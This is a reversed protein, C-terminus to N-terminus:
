FKALKRERFLPTVYVIMSMLLGPIFAFNVNIPLVILTALFGLLISWYASKENKVKWVLGGLLAPAFILLIQVSVVALTIIDQIFYALALGGIGFLSASIRGVRLIEKESANQRKALFYDKTITASGVMIGTDVTSMIIALVSALGLGLLGSPLIEAMLTFMAGDSDAQPVIHYALLGVLIAAGIVGVKLIGSWYFAIKATRGDVAAFARQWADMSTLILPFTFLVGAWFFVPGSYNYLNLFGEPLAFLEQVGVLAFGKIFLFIFFPFIVFFQLADTYFDGKVGALATYLITVLAVIFLAPAFSLNTIVNILQAFAVFQIATAFFYAILVVLRGIKRTRDSYQHFLYDGLTYAKQEDGFKKIRPALYGMLAWGLASAIMFLVGFSIGTKFSTSAVGLVTGAGVSTSLTTFILLLLKTKRNNVFYGEAGEKKSLYLGLGLCALMYIVLITIDLPPINM